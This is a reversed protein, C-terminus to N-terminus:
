STGRKNIIGQILPRVHDVWEIESVGDFDFGSEALTLGLDHFESNTLTERVKLRWAKLRETDIKDTYPEHSPRPGSGSTRAPEVPEGDRRDPVSADAPARVPSDNRRPRTEFHVLTRRSKNTGKIPEMTRWLVLEDGPELKEIRALQDRGAANDTRHTSINEVGDPYNDSPRGVDVYLIVRTSSEEIEHRVYQGTFVQAELVELATKWQRSGDNIMSTIHPIARNIKAKWQGENNGMPGAAAIAAAIISPIVEDPKLDSM